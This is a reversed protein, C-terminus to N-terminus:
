IAHNHVEKIDIEWAMLSNVLDYRPCALNVVRKFYFLNVILTKRKM